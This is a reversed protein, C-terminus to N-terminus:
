ISTWMMLEWTIVLHFLKSQSPSQHFGLWLMKDAEPDALLDTEIFLQNLLFPSQAGM